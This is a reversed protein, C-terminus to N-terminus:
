KTNRPYTGVRSNLESVRCYGPIILARKEKAKTITAERKDKIDKLSLLEGTYLCM